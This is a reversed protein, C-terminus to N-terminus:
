RAKTGNQERTLATMKLLSVGGKQRKENLKTFLTVGFFLALRYFYSFFLSVNPHKIMYIESQCHVFQAFYGVQTSSTKNECLKANFIFPILETKM